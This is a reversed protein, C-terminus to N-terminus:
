ARVAPMETWRRGDLEPTSLKKGNVANQKYFFAVGREVCADRLERVWDEDMPRAGKGSEAGAILWDIGTLDLPEAYHEIGPVRRIGGRGDPEAERKRRIRDAPPNVLSGLLPEASIFRIVAPIERLVDARWTYRANEISVGLWVNPLPWAVEFHQNWDGVCHEVDWTWSGREFTLDRMLERAREPRKTLVQFVHQRSLAMVAFVRQIFEDPIEEHFLDSMSHQVRVIRSKRWSLPAELGSDTQWVHSFPQVM